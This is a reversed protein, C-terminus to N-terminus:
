AAKWLEQPREQGDNRERYKRCPDCRPGTPTGRLRDDGVGTCYDNCNGCHGEGAARQSQAAISAQERRAEDRLDHLFNEQARRAAVAAENLDKVARLYRAWQVDIEDSGALAREMRQEPGTLEQGGRGDGEYNRGKRGDDVWAQHTASARAANAELTAADGQIARCVAEIQRVSRSM